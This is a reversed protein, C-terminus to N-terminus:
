LSHFAPAPAAVAHAPLAAKSATQTFREALGPYDKQLRDFASDSVMQKIAGQMVSMKQTIKDDIYPQIFVFEYLAVQSDKLRLAGKAQGIKEGIHHGGMAVGGGTGLMALLAAEPVPLGLAAAGLCLSAYATGAIAAGIYGGATRMRDPLSLIAAEKAMAQARISEMALISEAPDAIRMATLVDHQFNRESSIPM